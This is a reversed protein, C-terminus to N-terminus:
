RGVRHNIVLGVFVGVAMLPLMVRAANQFKGSRLEEQTAGTM